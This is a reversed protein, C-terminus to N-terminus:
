RRCGAPDAWPTTNAPSPWNIECHPPTKSAASTGGVIITPACRSSSSVSRSWSYEGLSRVPATRQERATRRRPHGGIPATANRLRMAQRACRPTRHTLSRLTPARWPAEVGPCRRHSRRRMAPRQSGVTELSASDAEARKDRQRCTPARRGRSRSATPSRGAPAPASTTMVSRTPDCPSANQRSSNGSITAHANPCHLVAFHRLRPRALRRSRGDPTASRPVFPVGARLAHRRVSVCVGVSCLGEAPRASEGKVGYGPCDARQPYM